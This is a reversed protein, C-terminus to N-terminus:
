LTGTYGCNCVAQGNTWAETPYCPRPGSACQMGCMTQPCTLQTIYAQVTGRMTAKDGQTDFSDVRLTNVDLSIKRMSYRTHQYAL